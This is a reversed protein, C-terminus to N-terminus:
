NSYFESKYTEKGSEDFHRGTVTFVGYKDTLGCQEYKLINNDYYERVTFEILKGTNNFKYTEQSNRSNHHEIIETLNTFFIHM